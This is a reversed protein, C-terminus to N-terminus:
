PNARDNVQEDLEKIGAMNLKGKGYLEQMQDARLIFSGKRGEVLWMGGMLHPSFKVTLGQRELSRVLVQMDAMPQGSQPRRYKKTGAEMVGAVSLKGEDQLRRLGAGLLEYKDGNPLEAIFLDAHKDRQFLDVRIGVITLKAMANLVESDM